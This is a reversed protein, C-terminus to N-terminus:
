PDTASPNLRLDQRNWILRSCRLDEARAGHDLKLLTASALHVLGDSPSDITHVLTHFKIDLNDYAIAACHTRGLDLMAVRSNRTLSRVGRHISSLAISLGMHGLVKVVKEPANTSHLFLGVSSQLANCHLNRSQMFISIVVVSRIVALDHRTTQEERAAPESTDDLAGWLETDEIDMAEENGRGEWSSGILIEYVLKWLEPALKQMGDSLEEVRFDQIQDAHMNMASFHWGNEKSCLVQVADVY